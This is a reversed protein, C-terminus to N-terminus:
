GKKPGMKAMFEKQREGIQAPTLDEKHTAMSWRHGFPDQLQGYRDGWFMDMVPMVPKGGASVAKNFAADVDPLYIMFSGTPKHTPSAPTVLQPGGPMEDNLAIVTDGIRLEAHWISKGDPAPHRMLEQAGFAAKYFDIAGSANKFVLNPIVDQVGPMKWKPAAAKPARAAKAARPASRRPASKRAAKRAPKKAAAKKAKKPAKKAM